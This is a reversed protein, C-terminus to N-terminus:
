FRSFLSGRWSCYLNMGSTIKSDTFLFFLRVFLFFQSCLLVCNVCFCDNLSHVHSIVTQALKVGKVEMIRYLAGSCGTGRPASLSQAIIILLHFPPPTNSHTPLSFLLRVCLFIVYYGRGVFFLKARVRM